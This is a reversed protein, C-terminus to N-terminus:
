VKGENTVLLDVYECAKFIDNTIRVLSLESRLSALTSRIVDVHM